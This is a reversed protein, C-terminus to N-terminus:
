AITSQRAVIRRTDGSPNSWGREEVRHLALYLPRDEITLADDTTEKIWRTIGYGHRPRGTLTRLIIGDLTGQLPSIDNSM